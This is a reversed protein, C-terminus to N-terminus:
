YGGIFSGNIGASVVNADPLADEFAQVVSRADAGTMITIQQNNNITGGTTTTNNNNTTNNMNNITPITEAQEFNKFMNDFAAVMELEKQRDEQQSEQQKQYENFADDIEKDTMEPIKVYNETDGGIKAGGVVKGEVFKGGHALAFSGKGEYNEDALIANGLAEGGAKAGEYLFGMVKGLGGIIESLVPFMEKIKDICKDVVDPIAGFVDAFVQGVGKLDEQLEPFQSMWDNFAAIIDGIVSEGGNMYTIFDEIVLSVAAIAAGVAAFHLIAPAMLALFGALAGTVLGAVVKVADMNKLFPTMPKIIQVFGDKLKVLIDWFRGFGRSIGEITVGLAQRVFDGNLVLFNKFNDVVKKLNPAFSLAISDGLTRFVTKLTNLSKNLEAGRKIADEPIIAGVLQAEEFLESLGQRGQKLLMLTDNSIGVREAWQIARANSMKNLKDGVDKLVEDASRLQGSANHVSVGLMMLEMNLEGPIPSSMTKLMNALDSTVAGASAGVSEAAYQWAQLSETSLNTEQSLKQLNIARDGASTLFAATAAGAATAAAAWKTVETKVTKIGDEIMKLAQESGAGLKFSLLTVLEDAVAM